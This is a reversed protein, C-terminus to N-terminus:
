KLLLMKKVSVFYKGPDQTARAEIRYFYIGSAVNANWIVSQYGANQESSVVM